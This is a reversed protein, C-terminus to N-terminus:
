NSDFILYFSLVLFQAFVAVRNGPTWIMIPEFRKENM